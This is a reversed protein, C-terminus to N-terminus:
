YVSRLTRWRDARALLVLRDVGLDELPQRTVSGATLFRDDLGASVTVIFRSPDRGSTAYAQRSLRVVDRLAPGVPTNIGDAREGALRAMRPGFAGIIIPPVPDPVLFGTAEGSRGSWLQHLTTITEALQQRRVSDPAVPRGLARQESSYPSGPGGGAGLGLLLRGGSVEQLTAAMGALTGADRNAINLVMPGIALRETCAAVATLVTWCELVRDAGHVSGALHDWTWFGDFGGQEAAHALARVDSWRAGFPDVVVDIKM